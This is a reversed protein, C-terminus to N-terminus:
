WAHGLKCIIGGLVFSDPQAQLDRMTLACYINCVTSDHSLILKCSIDPVATQSGAAFWQLMRVADSQCFQWQRHMSSGKHDQSSDSQWYVSCSLKHVQSRVDDYADNSSDTCRCCALASYESCGVQCCQWQRHMSGINCDHLM